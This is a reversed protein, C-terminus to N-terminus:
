KAELRVWAISASECALPPAAVSRNALDHVLNPQEKSTKEGM